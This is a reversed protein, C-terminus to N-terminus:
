NTFFVISDRIFDFKVLINLHFVMTLNCTTTSIQLNKTKDFM